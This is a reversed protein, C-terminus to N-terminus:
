GNRDHLGPELITPRVLLGARPYDPVVALDIAGILQRSEFLTIAYIAGRGNRFRPAHARIWEAARGDPYPHPINLTTAAVAKNGALKQVAPADKLTFPRLLLQATRLQPQSTM